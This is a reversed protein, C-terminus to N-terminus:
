EPTSRIDLVTIEWIAGADLTWTSLRVGAGIALRTPSAMQRPGIGGAEDVLAPPADIPSLEVAEADIKTVACTHSDRHFELTFAGEVPLQLDRETPAPQTRARGYWIRERIRLTVSKEM